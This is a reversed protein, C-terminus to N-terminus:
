VRVDTDINEMSAEERKKQDPNPSNTRYDFCKLNAIM